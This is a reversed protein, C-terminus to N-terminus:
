PMKKQVCIKRTKSKKFNRAVFRCIRAAAYGDGYPNKRSVMQRYASKSNLLRETERVIESKSTGVLKAIGLRIGEGRESVDRMILVPKRFSPAEEQIGGSDTLILFARDMLVLFERYPLPHVLHIRSIGFLEQHVVQQVNPNLHVPYIIETDPYRRVIVKLARCISRLPKGFSERRHATVLIIKQAKSILRLLPQTEHKIDKRLLRLADVVTNGTVFIRESPVGERILNKRSEETPAFHYDALRSILVRNIEEPFPHYKHHTRLGAEIHAVPIKSYFAKLAVAFASTTDGQVLVLEPRVKSFVEDMKPFLRSTLDSLTQGEEMINLDFDIRLKFACLAQDVMERHQATLCTYVKFDLHKRFEQIVPAMKFVEPRTGFVFLIRKM